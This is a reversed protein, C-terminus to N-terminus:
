LPQDIRVTVFAGQKITLQPPIAMEVPPTDTMRPDRRVPQGYQDLPGSGSYAPDVPASRQPMGQAPSPPLEDVSRWGGGATSSQSQPDTTPLGGTQGQAFLFGPVALLALGALRGRTSRHSRDIM